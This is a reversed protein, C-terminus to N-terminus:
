ERRANSVPEKTKAQAPKEPQRLFSLGAAAVPEVPPVKVALSKFADQTIFVQVAPVLPNAVAM